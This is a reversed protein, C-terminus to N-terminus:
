NTRLYELAAQRDAKEPRVAVYEHAAMHALFDPEPAIRHTEVYYRLGDGWIWEGDTMTSLPVAAGRSPDLRDTDLGSVRVIVTGGRLFRVVGALEAPDTLRPRNPAFTWDGDANRGDFLRAIRM